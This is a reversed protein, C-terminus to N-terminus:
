IYDTSRSPTKQQTVLVNLLMLNFEIRVEVCLVSPFYAVHAYETQRM